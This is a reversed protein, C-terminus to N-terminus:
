RPQLTQSTQLSQRYKEADWNLLAQEDAASLCSVGAGDPIRAVVMALAAVMEEGAEGLGEPVLVGAGPVLVVPRFPLAGSASVVRDLAARDEAVAVGPGLFVVHDPYLSGSAAIRVAAPSLALGHAGDRRTPRYGSGAAIDELRSRDANGAPRPDVRLRGAVEDLLAEVAACDPGGVILGHNALIVVDAPAEAPREAVAAAVARTLDLGPKCYPVMAWALGDLRAALAAAAAPQVAWALTNVCHVHFVVPHPMLAHLTTEISPRLGGAGLAAGAVPDAAGDRVGQRVRSLSVDVFVDSVLADALRTGSAKVRLVDGIKLSTNGGAGQVYLPNSGVRASAELLSRAARHFDETDHPREM